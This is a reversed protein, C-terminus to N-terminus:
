SLNEGVGPNVSLFLDCNPDTLEGVFWASNPELKWEINSNDFTDDLDIALNLTKIVVKVTAANLNGSGLGNIFFFTSKFDFVETASKDGISDDVDLSPTNNLNM